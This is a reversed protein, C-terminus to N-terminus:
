LASYVVKGEVITCDVNFERDLVVLDADKGVEISGKNKEIGLITAPTLSTMQAAEVFSLGLVEVANRLARNMTLTSGALNGAKIRVIGDKVIADRDDFSYGGDPLGAYRVADTILAVKDPKKNRVLLRASGSHSHITDLILEATVGEKLFAAGVVGPERHHLGRMGNFCHTIHSVGWEFAQEMQEYTAGTHGASVVIGREVLYAIVEEAGDLEPALTVVRISNGSAEIWAKMKKLSPEQLFRSDQAGKFESSIMPGELHIGLIKSDNRSSEKMFANLKGLIRLTKEYSMTSTTLLLSTTGHRAHFECFVNLDANEDCVDAGNGGHVHIDIFGPFVLKGAGDIVSDRASFADDGIACIKGDRV